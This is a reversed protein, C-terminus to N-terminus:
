HCMFRKYHMICYLTTQHYTCTYAFKCIIYRHLNNLSISIVSNNEGVSQILMKCICSYVWIQVYTMGRCLVFGSNNHLIHISLWCVIKAFIQFNWVFLDFASWCKVYKECLQTACWAVSSILIYMCKEM